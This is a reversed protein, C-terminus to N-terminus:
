LGLKDEVSNMRNSRMLCRPLSLMKLGMLLCMRSYKLSSLIILISSNGLKSKPALGDAFDNGQIEVLQEIAQEQQQEFGIPKEVAM